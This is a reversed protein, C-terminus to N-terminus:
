GKRAADIAQQLRDQGVAGAIMDKGIVWAPTGNVGLQRAFGLNRELEKSVEDRGAFTQAAAPDVGAARAAAAISEASPRPGAFMAQHFAAYKGQAAAALGMRAAPESEPAIIPLERVVVRLDPNARILAAVDEVSKRCYTCAFDTFEVLTVKGAPNGLVAGPFPTELAGRMPALRAQNERAQLRDMAEPLIEPHDLIYDRVVGEIAARNSGGIAAPTRAQLWWGGAVGLLAAPLAFVLASRFASTTM